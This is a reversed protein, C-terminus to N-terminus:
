LSSFRKSYSCLHKYACLRCERQHRNKELFIDINNCYPSYAGGNLQKQICDLRLDLAHKYHDDWNISYRSKSLCALPTADAAIFALHAEVANLKTHLYAAGLVKGYQAEIVKGYLGLQMHRLQLHDTKSPLQKGTKIDLILYDGSVKHQCLMDIIGSYSHQKVKLNVPLELAVIHFEQCLQNLFTAILPLMGPQQDLTATNSRYFFQQEYVADLPRDQCHTHFYHQADCLFAEKDFGHKMQPSLAVEILKHLLAGWTAADFLTKEFELPPIKAVRKLYFQYPCSQYQHVASVSLENSYAPGKFQGETKTDQLAMPAQSVILPEEIPAHKFDSCPAQPIDQALCPYSFHSAQWNAALALPSHLANQNYATFREINPWNEQSLGLVFCSHAPLLLPSYYDLVLRKPMHKLPLSFRLSQALLYAMHAWDSHNKKPWNLAAQALHNLIYVLCPEDSQDHCRFELLTLLPELSDIWDLATKAQQLKLLAQHLPSDPEFPLAEAKFWTQKCLQHYHEQLTSQSLIHLLQLMHIGMAYHSIPKARADYAELGLRQLQDIFQPEYAEDSPLRYVSLGKPSQTESAQLVAQCESEINPYAQNTPFSPLTYKQSWIISSSMNKLYTQTADSPKSGSYLLVDVKHPHDLLQRFWLSSSALHDCLVIVPYCYLQEIIHSQRQLFPSSFSQKLRQWDQYIAPQLPAEQPDLSSFHAHHKSALQFRTSFSGKFSKHQALALCLSQVDQHTPELQSIALIHPIRHHQSAAQFELLQKHLTNPVIWLAEQAHKIHANAYQLPSQNPQLLHSTISM